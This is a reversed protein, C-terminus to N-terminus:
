AAQSSRCAADAALFHLVADVTMRRQAAAEDQAQMDIGFNAQWTHRNSVRYFCLSSIMWHLRLPDIGSRFVELRAGADLITRLRQVIPANIDSFTQKGSIHRASHINEISVLRVWEPHAAHYDFSAEVLRRMADEPDGLNLELAREMDRIGGYANELVAAYLAEKSRFHYYITPKATHTLAAIDDVRAGTLGKEAFVSLAAKLIEARTRELDHPRSRGDARQMSMNEEPKPRRVTASDDPMRM